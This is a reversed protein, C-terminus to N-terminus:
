SEQSLDVPRTFSARYIYCLHESDIYKSLNLYFMNNHISYLVSLTWIKSRFQEQNKSLLYHM